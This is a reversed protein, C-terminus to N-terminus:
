QYFESIFLTNCLFSDYSHETFFLCYLTIIAGKKVEEELAELVNPQIPMWIEEKGVRFLVEKEVLGDLQKPDGHLLKFVRKMSSFTENSVDRTEGLYEADFRCRETRVYYQPIEPDKEVRDAYARESELVSTIDVKPYNKNWRKWYKKDSEGHSSIAFSLFLICFISKKM